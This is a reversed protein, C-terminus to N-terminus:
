PVNLCQGIAELVRESADGVNVAQCVCSAAVTASGESPEVRRLDFQLSNSGAQSGACGCALLVDNTDRCSASITAVGGQATLPSTGSIAYVDDKTIGANSELTNIRILADALADRLQEVDAARLLSNAAFTNDAPPNRQQQAIVLAPVLVGGLIAVNRAWRRAQKENM